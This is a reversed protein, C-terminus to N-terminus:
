FFYTVNNEKDGDGVSIGFYGDRTFRIKNMNSFIRVGKDMCFKNESEKAGSSLNFAFVVGSALTVGMLKAEFDNTLCLCDCTAFNENEVSHIEFGTQRSVMKVCSSANVDDWDCSDMRIYVIERTAGILEPKRRFKRLNKEFAFCKPALIKSENLDAAFVEYAVLEDHISENYNKLIFVEEDVVEIGNYDHHNKLQISHLLTLDYDYAHVRTSEDDCTILAYIRYDSAAIEINKLNTFGLKLHSRQFGDCDFTTLEDKNLVLVFHKSLPVFTGHAPGIKVQNVKQGRIRSLIDNATYFRPPHMCVRTSECVDSPHHM